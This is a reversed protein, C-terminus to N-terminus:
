LAILIVVRRGGRQMTAALHSANALEQYLDTLAEIEGIGIGNLAIIEDGEELGLAAFAEPDGGPALRFRKGGGQRVVKVDISGVLALPNSYLRRRYDSAIRTTDRDGRRDILMPPAGPEAGEISATTTALAPRFRGDSRRSLLRYYGNRELLVADDLVWSVRMASGALLEGQRYLRAAGDSEIEAAGGAPDDRLIRLLRHHIFEPPEEGFWAVDDETFIAREQASLERESASQSQLPPQWLRLLLNARWPWDPLLVGALLVLIAVLLLVVRQM